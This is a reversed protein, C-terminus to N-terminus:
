LEEWFRESLYKDGSDPFVTVIVGRRLTRAIRLVGALAAGSSVGVLMGEERALRRVMAYAEETAVELNVDALTKDYIGPRIATPMHKLGEIGHFPGNPQVSVLTIGPCLERLRRGAGVFTGSTGLGAVFHTIRGETQEFIEVGTTEYHARWNAPNNYQDAYFYREPHEAALRRAMRIAGDSGERPDTFILEAGLASLIRKREPTVNAPIALTVRYGKVRAIWAYAIGTNGSTADLIIKEPTLQGTAEAERIIWLGARDKVSGGPNYWEAKAYIEVGSFESAIRSLRLLPTRGVLSLLDTPREWERWIARHGEM